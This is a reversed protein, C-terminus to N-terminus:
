LIRGRIFPVPKEQSAEDLCQVRKALQRAGLTHGPPELDPLPQEHLDEGDGSERCGYWNIEDHKREDLM